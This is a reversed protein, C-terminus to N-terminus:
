RYDRKDNIVPGVGIGRVRAMVQGFVSLWLVPQVARSFLETPDRVLKRLEVDAVAWAQLGFRKLAM